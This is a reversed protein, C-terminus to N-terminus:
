NSIQYVIKRDPILNDVLKICINMERVTKEGLISLNGVQFEQRLVYM